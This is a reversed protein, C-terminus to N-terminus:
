NVVDEAYFTTLQVKVAIQKDPDHQTLEVEGPALFEVGDIRVIREVAELEQLFIMLHAEDLVQMELELSMLKLEKPLAEMNIPTVPKEEEVVEETTSSETQNTEQEATEEKSKLSEAQAAQEDYNNFTMKVIKSESIMEVEHITRLLNDLERQVPLKKRLEFDDANGTDVAGLVAVQQELTILETQLQSISQETQKETEVKPYIFYYYFAGLLLVVVVGLLIALSKSENLSQRM